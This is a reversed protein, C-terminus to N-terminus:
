RCVAEPCRGAELAVPELGRERALAVLPAILAVTEACGDRTAGPGLADHALVIAGDAVDDGIAALMATATDGRWDHTDATWRVLELGRAAAVGETWEATVGWPTRWLEPEVGLAALTSLARDTDAAGIEESIKTHRIHAFAHLQVGHGEALMRDILEAEAAARPALVFFTARADVAALADLVRPTWLPDPGDDFTLAVRGATL